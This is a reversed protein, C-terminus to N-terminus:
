SEKTMEISGIGETCTMTGIRNESKQMPGEIITEILRMTLIDLLATTGEIHDPICPASGLELDLLTDISLVTCMIDTIFTSSVLIIALYVVM